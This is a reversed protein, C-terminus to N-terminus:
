VAALEMEEQPVFVYRKMTAAVEWSGDACGDGDKVCRLIEGTCRIRTAPSYTSLTVMYEVHKGIPLRNAVIFRVGGTGIDRTEGIWDVAKGELAVIRLPLRVTFRRERRQEETRVM